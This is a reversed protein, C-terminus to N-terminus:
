QNVETKLKALLDQAAKLQAEANSCDDSCSAALGTALRFAGNVERLQALLKDERENSIVGTKQLHDIRIALDQVIKSGAEVQNTLSATACATLSLVAGILVFINM